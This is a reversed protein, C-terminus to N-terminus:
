CCVARLRLLFASEKVGATGSVVCEGPEALSPRWCMGLEAGERRGGESNQSRSGFVDFDSVLGLLEMKVAPEGGSFSVTVLPETEPWLPRTLFSCLGSTTSDSPRSACSQFPDRAGLSFVAMPPLLTARVPTSPCLEHVVALSTSNRWSRALRSASM